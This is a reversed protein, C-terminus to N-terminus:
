NGYDAIRAPSAFSMAKIIEEDSAEGYVQIPFGYYDFSDFGRTALVTLGNRCFSVGKRDHGFVIPYYSRGCDGFCPHEHPSLRPLLSSLTNRAMPEESPKAIPLESDTVLSDM